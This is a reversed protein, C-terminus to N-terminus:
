IAAGEDGSTDVWIITAGNVVYVSAGESVRSVEVGETHLTSEQDPAVWRESLIDDPSAEIVKGDQIYTDNSAVFAPEGNQRDWWRPVVISVVVAMAVAATAVPRWANEGLWQTLRRWIGERRGVVGPTIEQEPLAEIGAEVGAWFDSFDVAAVEERFAEQLLRGIGVLDDVARALEPEEELRAEFARQEDLSMEGDVYRELRAEAGSLRKLRNSRKM